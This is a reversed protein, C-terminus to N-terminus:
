VAWLSDCFDQLGHVVHYLISGALNNVWLETSGLAAWHQGFSRRHKAYDMMQRCTFAVPHDHCVGDESPSIKHDVGHQSMLAMMRGMVKHGDQSAIMHHPQTAQLIKYMHHCECHAHSPAGTIIYLVHHARHHAYFPDVVDLCTHVAYM